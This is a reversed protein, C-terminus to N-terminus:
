RTFAGQRCHLRRLLSLCSAKSRLVGQRRHQPRSNLLGSSSPWRVTQYLEVPIHHQRKAHTQMALSAWPAHLEATSPAELFRQPSSELKCSSINRRGVAQRPWVFSPNFQGHPKRGPTESSVMSPSFNRPLPGDAAVNLRALYLTSMNCM